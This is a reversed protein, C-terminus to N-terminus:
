ATRRRLARVGYLTPLGFAFSAALGVIVSGLVWAGLSSAAFKGLVQWNMTRPMHM